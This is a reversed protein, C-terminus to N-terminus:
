PRRLLSREHIYHYQLQGEGYTWAAGVPCVKRVAAWSRFSRADVPQYQGDPTKLAHLQPVCPREKCSSCPSFATPPPPPATDDQILVLARYGFWPGYTRHVGLHAPGVSALGLAQGLRQFGVFHGGYRKHVFYVRHPQAVAHLATNVVQETYEDLPDSPPSGSAERRWVWERLPAWLNLSSGLLLASVASTGKPLEVSLEAADQDSLQCTVQM